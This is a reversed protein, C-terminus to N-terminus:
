QGRRLGKLRIWIEPHFSEIILARTGSPSRLVSRRAWRYDSRSQESLQISAISLDSRSLSLGWDLLLNGLPKKGDQLDQMMETPLWELPLVSEADFMVTRRHLLSVRRRLCHDGVRCDLLEAEGPQCRDLTQEHVHLALAMGFRRLLFRTLSGTFGLVAAAEPSVKAAEASWERVPTWQQT